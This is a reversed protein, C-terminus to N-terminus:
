IMRINGFMWLEISSDQDFALRESMNDGRGSFSLNSTYIVISANRDGNAM